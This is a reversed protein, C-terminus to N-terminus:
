LYMARLLITWINVWFIDRWALDPVRSSGQKNLSDQWARRTGDLYRQNKQGSWHCSTVPLATGSLALKFAQMPICQFISSQRLCLVNRASASCYLTFWATASWFLNFNLKSMKQFFHTEMNYYKHLGYWQHIFLQLVSVSSALAIEKRPIRVSWSKPIRMNFCAPVRFM